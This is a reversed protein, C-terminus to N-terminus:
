PETGVEVLVRAPGKHGALALSRRETRIMKHDMQKWVPVLPSGAWGYGYFFWLPPASVPPPLFSVLVCLFSCVLRQWIGSGFVLVSQGVEFRSPGKLLPSTWVPPLSRHAAVVSPVTPTRGERGDISMCVGKRPGQGARWRVLQRREGRLVGARTDGGVPPIM